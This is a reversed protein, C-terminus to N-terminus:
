HSIETPSQLLKHFKPIYTADRHYKYCKALLLYLSRSVHFSFITDYHLFCCDSSYVVVVNISDHLLCFPVCYVLSPPSSSCKQLNTIRHLDALLLLTIYFWLSTCCVVSSHFCFFAPTTYFFFALSFSSSSHVLFFHDFSFAGFFHLGLQFCSLSASNYHSFYVFYARHM